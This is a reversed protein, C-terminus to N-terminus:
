VKVLKFITLKQGNVCRLTLFCLKTSPVYPVPGELECDLFSQYSRAVLLLARTALFFLNLTDFYSLSSM